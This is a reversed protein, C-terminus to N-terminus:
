RTETSRVIRLIEDAEPLENASAPVHKWVVTGSRDILFAGAKQWRTGSATRNRIGDRRLAMAGGLSARGLFHSIGSYGLGCQGYLTREPDDIWRARGAGGIEALWERTVRADGHGVFIVDVREDRAALDRLSRVTKEAFPCGTHRLFVICRLPQEGPVISAIPLQQGIRPEAGIRQQRPKRLGIIAM